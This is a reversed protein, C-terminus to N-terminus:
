KIPSYGPLTTLDVHDLQEPNAFDNIYQKYIECEVFVAFIDADLHNDEVM